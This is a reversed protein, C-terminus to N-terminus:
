PGPRHRSQAELADVLSAREENGAELRFDLRSRADPRITRLLLCSPGRMQPEVARQPAKSAPAGFALFRLRQRSVKTICQVAEHEFHGGEIAGAFHELPGHLKSLLLHAGRDLTVGVEVRQVGLLTAPAVVFRSPGMPTITEQWAHHPDKGLTSAAGLPHLQGLAVGLGELRALHVAIDVVEAEDEQGRIM